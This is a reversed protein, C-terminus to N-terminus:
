ALAELFAELRSTASAPLDSKGDLELELLPLGLKSLEQVQAHWLDCFNHRFCIIAHTQNASALEAIHEFYATNPRRWIAPIQFYSKALTEFADDRNAIARSTRLANETANAAICADKAALLRQVSQWLSEPVPGGAALIRITAKSSLARDNKDPPLPSSQNWNPKTGSRACLFDQLRRLEQVYLAFAQETTTSPVNLLFSEGDSQRCFVDYARRMQDCATTFVMVPSQGGTQQRQLQQLFASAFSCMGESRCDNQAAPIMRCPSLGCAAILERPVFPCTYYVNNM